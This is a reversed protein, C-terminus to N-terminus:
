GQRSPRVNVEINELAVAIRELMMLLEHLQSDDM